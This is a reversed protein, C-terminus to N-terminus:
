GAMQKLAQLYALQITDLILPTVKPKKFSTCLRRDVDELLLNKEESGTSLRLM